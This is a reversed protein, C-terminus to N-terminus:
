LPFSGLLTLSDISSLKSALSNGSIQDLPSDLKVLCLDYNNGAAQDFKPHIEWDQSTRSFEQPEQQHQHKDNFTM